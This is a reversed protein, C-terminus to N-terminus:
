LNRNWNWFSIQQKTLQTEIAVAGVYDNSPICSYISWDQVAITNGKIALLRFDEERDLDLDVSALSGSLGVGVAKLYAEKATWLKLFVKEQHEDKLSAILQFERPSFFRRAIKLADPMKRLYEIDVGILHNTTFGYLVYEHSHSINFQLPHAMSCKKLQPKGRDGYNFVLNEPSIGLYDGLLHRLISRAVIFRRKDALFRFKSARAIEDKSLCTALETVLQESLDLNTRWIHVLNDQLSPSSPPNQWLNM